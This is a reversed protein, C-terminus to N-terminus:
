PNGVHCPHPPFAAQAASAEVISARSRERPPTRSIRRAGRRRRWSARSRFLRRTLVGETLFHLRTHSGGVREFRVQYGVTQGLEEGLEWAARRAALRAAIRRPELVLVNGPVAELLAAPVHTTKGAGPEAVLVLNPYRNLSALVDPVLGDVPLSTQFRM